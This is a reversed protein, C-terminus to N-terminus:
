RATAAATATKASAAQVALGVPCPDVEAPEVAVVDLGAPPGVEDLLELLEAVVAGAITVSTGADPAAPTLGIAGIRAVTLPPVSVDTVRVM